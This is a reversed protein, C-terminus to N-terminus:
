QSEVPNGAPTLPHKLDFIIYDGTEELVPFAAYMMDKFDAQSDFEGFATVLFYDKGEVQEQFLKVRDFQQGALERVMFDGSNMWNQPTVWGWYGLRYGYDQTIALVKSDHGIKKGLEQWLAPEGRYDNRKLTVRVDWAKISVWFTIIGLIALM